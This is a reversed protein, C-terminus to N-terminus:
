ESDEQGEQTAQGQQEQNTEGAQEQTQEQTQEANEAETEVEELADKIELEDEIEQDKKESMVKYKTRANEQKQETTQKVESAKAIIRDFNQQMKALQEESMKDAQRELIRAKVATAKEAHAELKNQIRITRELDAKASEEDGNSDMKNIAKQARQMNREHVELAKELGKLNGKKAMVAAEAVREEANAIELEAKKENNLALNTRLREMSRELGYLPSDPTIGAAEEDAQDEATVEADTNAIVVETDAAVVEADTDAVIATDEQALVMTSTLSFVFMAMVLLTMIKTYEM